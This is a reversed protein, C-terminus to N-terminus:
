LGTARNVDHHFHTHSEMSAHILGLLLARAKELRRYTMKLTDLLVARKLVFHGPHRGM